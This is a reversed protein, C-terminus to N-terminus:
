YKSNMFYYQEAQEHTMKFKKKLEAVKIEKYIDRAESIALGRMRAMLAIMRTKPINKPLM